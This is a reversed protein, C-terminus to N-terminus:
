TSAFLHESLINLWQLVAKVSIFQVCILDCPWDQMACSMDNVM